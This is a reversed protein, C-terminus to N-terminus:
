SKKGGHPAVFEGTKEDLTWGGAKMKKWEEKVRLQVLDGAARADEASDHGVAHGNDGGANANSDSATQIKRGLHVDMLYKLGYRLPLAGRKHPYLLVTDVVTPHIMRVANLDNELAHGIVPTSPSILSFMLSRAAEPSPVIKLKRQQQQSQTSLSSSSIPTPRHDDGPRWRIATAMDELRVGSYRTNLDLVEGYPQVLVDLLEEGGPWSVVTLRILEMGYVTYGMECDFAIARDAPVADNAPTQAFQLVSALRKPDSAKFVHTPATTCGKEATDGDDVSTHCCRYRRQAKSLRDLASRETTYVKGPHHMCSGNTTLAGDEERRGPFVQFRRGCNNRDCLETNGCAKVSREIADIDSESPKTSVYGFKTLDDLPTIIRSLFRVEQVPSLGTVIPESPDPKQQGQTPALAKMTKQREEKWKTVDMRKYQMIKNKISNGYVSSKTTAIEQEEDLTRVILQQDTLVLKAEEDNADAKLEGNLRKYQEYLAKVLKLRLEHQAPAKPIHRPNLTEAKRPSHPTPKPVPSPKGPVGSAQTSSAAQKLSHSAATKDQLAPSATNHRPGRILPPPSVPKDRTALRVPDGSSLVQSTARKGEQTTKLRKIALNEDSTSDLATIIQRKRPIEQQEELDISVTLPLTPDYEADKVTDLPKDNHQFLCQFATCAVGKPCPMQRLAALPDMSPPQNRSSSPM